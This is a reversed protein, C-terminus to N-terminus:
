NLSNDFEPFKVRIDCRVTLSFCKHVVKYKGAACNDCATARAEANYKGAPCTTCSADGVTNKYKGAACVVCTAGNPGSYGANCKCDTLEESAAPSNSYTPCQKCEESGQTEGFLYFGASCATPSQFAGTFVGSSYPRAAVANSATARIYYGGSTHDLFSIDAVTLVQLTLFIPL